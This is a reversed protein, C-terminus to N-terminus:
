KFAKGGDHKGSTTQSHQFVDAFAQGDSPQNPESYRCRKAKGSNSGLYNTLGVSERHMAAVTCLYQMSGTVTRRCRPNGM